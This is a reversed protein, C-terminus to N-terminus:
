PIRAFHNALREIIQPWLVSPLDHGMGDILFLESNPILEALELGSSVAVLPDDRGHIILSPISLDALERRRNRCAIIALLQRIFGKPNFGRDHLKGAHKRIEAEDIPYKEGSLLRAVETYADIYEKRKLPLPTFLAQQGKESSESALPNGPSTMILGATKIRDQNEVAAIQAIMGGMSIGVIHAAPLSLVDMLGLVDDAMDKLSYPVEVPMGNQVAQIVDGLKPPHIDVRDSRGMDRNDFRIVLFGRGALQRCFDDRWEIMQCGLGSILIVPELNEEGIVQYCIKIGNPLPVIRERSEM